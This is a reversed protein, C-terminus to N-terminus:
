RRDENGFVSSLARNLARAQRLPKKSERIRGEAMKVASGSGDGLAQAVEARPYGLERRLVYAAVARPTTGPERRGRKLIWGWRRPRRPRDGGVSRRTAM